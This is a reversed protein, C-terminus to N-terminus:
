NNPMGDDIWQQIQDIMCQPLGTTGDPMLSASNTGTLADMMNGEAAASVEAYNTLPIDAEPSNSDHCGVCNNQIIPMVVGSFTIALSTDCDAVCSNNMAGQNIWQSLLDLQDQSLQPEDAPPMHGDDNIDPETVAEWLNSRSLDFPIVFEGDDSNMISAYSTVNIDKEPDVSDHCESSGCYANLLPAIDNAFYTSDPDCPDPNVWPTPPTDTDIPLVTLDPHHKCAFAIIIIVLAISYTTKM